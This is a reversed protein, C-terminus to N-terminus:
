LGGLIGFSLAMFPQGEQIVADFRIQARLSFERYAQIDCGAKAFAGFSIEGQDVPVGQPDSVGIYVPGAGLEAFPTLVRTWSSSTRLDLFRYSLLPELTVFMYNVNAVPSFDAFNYGLDLGASLGRVWPLAISAMGEIRFSSSFDAALGGVPLYYSGGLKAQISSGSYLKARKPDVISKVSPNPITLVGFSIDLFVGIDADYDSIKGHLVSGDMLEVEVLLTLLSELSAESRIIQGSKIKKEGSSDQYTTWGGETKGTSGIIIRGDNTFLVEASLATSACLVLSLISITRFFGSNCV